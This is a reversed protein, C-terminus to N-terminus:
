RSGTAVQDLLSSDGLVGLRGLLESKATRLNVHQSMKYYMLAIFSRDRAHHSGSFAFKLAALLHM